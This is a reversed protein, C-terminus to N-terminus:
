CRRVGQDGFMQRHHADSDWDSPRWWRCWCHPPGPGRRVTLSIYLRFVFGAM